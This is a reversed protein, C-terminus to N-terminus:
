IQPKGPIPKLPQQAINKIIIKPHYLDDRNTKVKCSYKYQKINQFNHFEKKLKVVVELSITGVNSVFQSKENLLLWSFVWADRGQFFLMTEIKDPLLPLQRLIKNRINNKIIEIEKKSLGCTLDFKQM